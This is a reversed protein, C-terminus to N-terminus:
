IKRIDYWRADISMAWNNHVLGYAGAPYDRPNYVRFDSMTANVYAKAESACGKFEINMAVM